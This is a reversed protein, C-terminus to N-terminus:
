YKSVVRAPRGPAELPGGAGERRRDPRPGLVGAGGPTGSWTLGNGTGVHAIFLRLSVVQSYKSKVGGFSRKNSCSVIYIVMSLTQPGLTVGQGGLPGARWSCSPVGVRCVRCEVEWVPWALAALGGAPTRSTGTTCTASCPEHSSLKWRYM